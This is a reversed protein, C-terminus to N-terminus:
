MIRQKMVSEFGALFDDIEDAVPPAASGNNPAPVATELRKKRVADKQKIEQAQQARQALASSEAKYLDLVAAVEDASFSMRAVQQVEPPQSALWIHFDPSKAVQEWDPHRMALLKQEYEARIQAEREALVDPTVVEPADTPESGPTPGASESPEVTAGASQPSEQADETASHAVSLAAALDEKLMEALEPYESELREFRLEAQKIGRQT